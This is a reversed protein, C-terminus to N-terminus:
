QQLENMLELATVPRCDGRQFEERATRVDEVIQQRRSEAVRHRLIEVLTEQEDLTLQDAEDLVRGFPTVQPM